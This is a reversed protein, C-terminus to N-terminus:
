SYASEEQIPIERRNVWWAAAGVAIAGVAVLSAVHTIAPPKGFLEIPLEEMGPPAGDWGMWLLWLTRLRFQVTLRAITSPLLGLTLEIGLTYVVSAIMARKVFLVGLLLYVGAYALTSLVVLGTLVTALKFPEPPRAIFLCVVLAVGAASITWTAAMLYSGLVHALKAYPRVALYVWGRNDVESQVASSTWLFVGLMCTVNAILVFMIQVHVEPPPREDRDVLFTLAMVFPPFAALVLWWVFRSPTWCRSWQYRFSAWIGRLLIM